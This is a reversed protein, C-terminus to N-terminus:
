IRKKKLLEGNAIRGICYWFLFPQMSDNELPTAGIMAVLYFLVVMMEFMFIKRHHFAKRLAKYYILAFISCGIIGLEAMLRIYECDTISRMNYMLVMHGYRGLGDGLMSVHWLDAFLGFRDVVINSDSDTSRNLVYEVFSGDAYNIMFVYIGIAALFMFGWLYFLRKRYRRNAFVTMYVLYLCFFAISVRQQAFFLTLVAIILYGIKKYDVKQLFFDKSYYMFYFLSGFGMAYSWPWFSSLRTVEHFANLSSDEALGATRRAMYWDPAWFYLLLGVVMAILMPIRMRELFKNDEFLRNRGIFYFLMPIMQSKVGYYWISLRYNSFFFSLLLYTMFLVVLGDMSNWKLPYNQLSVLTLAVMCLIIIFYMDPLGLFSMFALLVYIWYYNDILRKLFHTM